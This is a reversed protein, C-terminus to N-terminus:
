DHNAEPMQRHESCDHHVIREVAAGCYPCALAEPTPDPHKPQGNPHFRGCDVLSRRESVSIHEWWGNM